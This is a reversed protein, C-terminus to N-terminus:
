ELTIERMHVGISWTWRQDGDEVGSPAPSHAIVLVVGAGSSSHAGRGAGTPRKRRPPM